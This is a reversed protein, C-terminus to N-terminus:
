KLITKRNRLQILIVTCDDRLRSKMEIKISILGKFLMFVCPFLSFSDFVGERKSVQLSIFRIFNTLLRFKLFTTKMTNLRRCSYVPLNHTHPIQDLNSLKYNKCFM